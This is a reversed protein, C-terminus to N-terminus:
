LIDTTPDIGTVNETVPFRICLESCKLQLVASGRFAFMDFVHTMFPLPAPTFAYSM